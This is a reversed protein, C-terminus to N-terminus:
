KSDELSGTSILLIEKPADILEEPLDENEVKWGTQREVESVVELKTKKDGIGWAWALTSKMRKIESEIEKLNKELLKEDSDDVDYELDYNGAVNLLSMLNNDEYAKNVLQFMDNTGGRDPHVHYALKKYLKKLKEPRNKLEELKEKHKKEKEESQKKYDDWHKKFEDFPPPENRVEGTDENVWVEKTKTQPKPKHYYKNFRNEFDKVYVELEERIEEEELKLYQHKLNYKKLKRNM